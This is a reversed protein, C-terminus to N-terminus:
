LLSGDQRLAQRREFVDRMHVTPSRPSSLGIASPWVPFAVVLRTALLHKADVVEEVTLLFLSRLRWDARGELRLSFDHPGLLTETRGAPNSYGVEEHVPFVLQTSEGRRVNLPSTLSLAPPLTLQTDHAAYEQITAFGINVRLVAPEDPDSQFAETEVILRIARLRSQTPMIDEAM